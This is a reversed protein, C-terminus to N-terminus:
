VGEAPPHLLTRIRAELYELYRDIYSQGDHERRLWPNMLTHRLIFIHDAEGADVDPRLRFSEPDIGVETAIREAQAEPLNDRLLSTYSAIFRKVQVPQDPEVKMASFLERGFRNMEALSSNGAPNVALCVLNTDPEFPVVIRVLHELRKAMALVRDYFQECAHVTQELLRGFGEAHLPLVKHTVYVSAASAGPKSGELIYQGLNRLKRDMPVAEESGGLDFVYAAKQTIFDVVRRDRAVFAGASYPVYGMKHPDVTISDVDALAGFARYVQHSPFHRFTERMAAHSRMGGDPLRFVSSLYGGWAADVHVGFDGGRGRYAERLRLIADIPDITGFETTGMVGVVALVPIRKELAEDLCVELHAPDLRMHQDVDVKILNATGFGLVKMGKEWSYHASAPVMVCPPALDAHQQFFGATGLTEIREARVAAAFDEFAEPGRDNRFSVAVDRRLEIISALSLNMLEWATYASLAKGLPGVEPPDFDVRAAAAQLGVGYFKVSRFNWLAEYNAVTGGSTLHGWACPGAEPDLNFGFMRALQRGAELEKELTVPAGEESVNNPNYLMTAMGAILGPMLLDANMHGIYRPHFFPVARKLEGSLAYLETKMRDVFEISEPAHQSSTRISPGDEPHFNRRWFTHDRVLEVLLAEFMQANEGQPGLFYPQLFDLSDSM